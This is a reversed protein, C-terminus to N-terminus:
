RNARFDRQTIRLALQVAAHEGLEQVSPPEGDDRPPPVAAECAALLERAAELEREGLNRPKVLRWGDGDLELRVGTRSVFEMALLTRGKHMGPLTVTGGPM